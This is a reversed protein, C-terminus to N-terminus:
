DISLLTYVNVFRPFKLLSKIWDRYCQQFYNIKTLINVGSYLTVFVSPLLAGFTTILLSVQSCLSIFLYVFLCVYEYSFNLRSLLQSFHIEYRKLVIGSDGSQSNDLPLIRSASFIRIAM